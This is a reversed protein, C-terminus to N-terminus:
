PTQLELGYGNIVEQGLDMSYHRENDDLPMLSGKVMYATWFSARVVEAILFSCSLLLALRLSREKTAAPLTHDHGASM